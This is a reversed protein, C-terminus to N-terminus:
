EFLALKKASLDPQNSECTNSFPEGCSVAEARTSLLISEM